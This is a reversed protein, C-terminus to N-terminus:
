NYASMSSPVKVHREESLDELLVTLYANMCGANLFSYLQIHFGGGGVILGIVYKKKMDSSSRQSSELVVENGLGLSCVFSIYSGSHVEPGM